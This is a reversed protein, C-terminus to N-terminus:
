AAWEEKVALGGLVVFLVAGLALLIKFPFGGAELIRSPGSQDGQRDAEQAAGKESTGNDGAASAGLVTGARPRGVPDRASADSVAPTATPAGFGAIKERARILREIRKREAASVGDARLRRIEANLLRLVRARDQASLSALAQQLRRINARVNRGLEIRELLMELRPPLRDFRSHFKKGPSASGGAGDSTSSRSGGSTSEETSSSASTSPGTVGTVATGSDLAGTATQEAGTATQQTTSVAGDLAGTVPQLVDGATDATTDVTSNLVDTTTQVPVIQAGAAPAVLLFAALLLLHSVLWKMGCRGFPSVRDFVMGVM